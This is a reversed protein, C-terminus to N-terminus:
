RRDIDVIDNAPFEDRLSETLGSNMIFSLVPSFHILRGYRTKKQSDYCYYSIHENTLKEKENQHFYLTM